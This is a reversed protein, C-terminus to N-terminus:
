VSGLLQRHKELCQFDYIVCALAKDLHNHATMHISPVLSLDEVFAGLSKIKEQLVM